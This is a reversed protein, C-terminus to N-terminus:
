GAPKTKVAKLSKHKRRFAAPDIDAVHISIQDAGHAHSILRDHNERYPAQVTSGGFEGKNVVVVHQFMHYNLASAMTDFTSVDKNHACVVFLDTKKKLDAALNLDTADYCIAGGIRIPGDDSGTFEIIHQCPRYGSVFLSEEGKTMYLKGQDRIIWQRGSDRYDPIFWRALNVLKGDHDTFVLGAFVISKTKDALRKVLDQDDPHLAVEPFVILDASARSCDKDAELKATLTKYTLQCIRALHGRNEARATPHNLKPDSITFDKTRPLLQQVTVIRFNTRAALSLRKISTILTPMGSAVCHNAELLEQRAKLVKQLSDLDEIKSIDDCQLYTSEFGPWQLCKMLLETLWNSVTAYSGVLAEASHMMGMRRKYWGTRLGKYSVVKGARWRNATFDSGGLVSARLITGLWYVIKHEHNTQDLWPPVAFRPDKTGSEVRAKCVLYNIDPHWLNDWTVRTNKKNVTIDSPSLPLLDFREEALKILARALKILAIEHEFGNSDSAIIRSLKQTQSTLDSALVPAAWRLRDVLDKNKRSNVLRKWVSLWFVGGRKAIEELARYKTNEDQGELTQLFAASFSNPKGTIQSAVEFLASRQHQYILQRGALIANLSHQITKTIEQDRIVVPKQLTALLLLAQRELFKPVKPASLVKQAFSAAVDLTEEPSSSKPFDIIQFFGNFDVCCRFIDALLYNMMAAARPNSGGGGGGVGSRAYIAELVPEIILPSPFIEIAKRLVLGLSPDQMWARVLKKSLLESENDALNEAKRDQDNVPTLKRRNRTISELRNAAFRKLTDPRIDSDFKVLRFISKDADSCADSPESIDDYQTSLLGELVASANELIDRDAPGSLEDQLLKIRGSLSGRNDLDSLATVKTKIENLEISPGAKSKLYKSIWNNLGNILSSIEFNEVSVVLRLDDVYRCYDHLVVGSMGPLPLGIFAGITRDFEVMYANAFFGSAVLGQPLGKGLCIDLRKSDEQAEEDWEWNIIKSAVQWFDPCANQYGHQLALDKLRHLLVSRDICDYFKKLDLNIVFVHDLDSISSAVARGVEVPRRLFNQYDTFFKRYTEGNGWRFWAGQDSWECQLRNGYSFVKRRVSLDYGDTGCDGQATEVADALCLMLATAWTQDRITLHALPRLPVDGNEKELGHQNRPRWGNTSDLEWPQSKPAPVLELRELNIQGKRLTEAWLKANRELGLASVDLGLTDAYWNHTRMYGHTKKWAQAIVVENALSEISPKLKRYRASILKM